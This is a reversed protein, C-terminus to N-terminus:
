SECLPQLGGEALARQVRKALEREEGVPAIYSLAEKACEWSLLQTVVWAALYQAALCGGATAVNGSAAFARGSVALGLTGFHRRARNDTCSNDTCFPHKGLIGLRHLVLASSCQSGILQRAPQLRLRGMVAEDGVADRTGKGSGLLVADADHSWELPRVNTSRVGNMSPIADQPAVIEATVNHERVRGLLNLAIFSDLENFGDFAVIAVRISAMALGKWM